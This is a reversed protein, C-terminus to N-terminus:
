QVSRSTFTVTKREIGTSAGGKGTEPESKSAHGGQPGKKTGAKRQYEEWAAAAADDQGTIMHAYIEQTTRVSSHGLRASVAPLPVGEALLVSTHTHRFLHLARGKPKSIKLRKFLASVSASVSDPKLPEGRPDPFVLDLDNRYDTGFQERFQDQL